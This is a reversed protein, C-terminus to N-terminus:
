PSPQDRLPKTGLYRTAPFRQAVRLRVTAQGTRSLEREAQRLNLVKDLTYTEICPGLDIEHAGLTFLLSEHGAVVQFLSIQSGALEQLAEGSTVDMSVTDGKLTVTEGNLLALVERVEFVDGRSFDEPVPFFQGTKRQLQALDDFADAWWQAEDPKWGGPTMGETVPTRLRGGAAGALSLELVRGPRAHAILQLVPVTNQPLTRPPPDFSFTMRAARTRREWRLRVRLFGSLDGGHLTGGERGTVRRTFELPMSTLPMGSAHQVTVQGRLPPVLDEHPSTIRMGGLPFMDLGLEKPGALSVEALNDATLEVEGGFRMTEEFRRRRLADDEDGDRFSVKGVLRVSARGTPDPGKPIFRVVSQGNAGLSTNLAYHPSIDQGMAHLAQVRDVYDPVSLLVDREARAVAIRELIYDGSEELAYRVLDTHAAFEQDLWSRGLWSRVFPFERRLSDFWRQEAPNADIPVLLDWHDPQHRAASTLSRVVQARRGPYMRGTFSKAEYIVLQGDETYE